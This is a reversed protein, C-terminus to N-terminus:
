KIRGDIVEILQKSGMWSYYYKGTQATCQNIEVRDGTMYNNGNTSFILLTRGDDLRKEIRTKKFKNSNHKKAKKERLRQKELEIRNKEDIIYQQIIQKKLREYTKNRLVIKQSVSSNIVENKSEIEFVLTPSDFNKIRYSKEGIPKVQGFPKLLVTTSNLCKWKFTITDDYEIISKSATFSQITPPFNFAEYDQHSSKKNVNIDYENRTNKDILISYAEEIEKFRDEFFKDGQNKDPHIKLSLKRYANKIQDNSADESIGLIYYYNKM